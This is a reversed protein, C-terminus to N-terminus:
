QQYEGSQAVPDAFQGDSPMVSALIVFACRTPRSAITTIMLRSSKRPQTIQATSVALAIKL